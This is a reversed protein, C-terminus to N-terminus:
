LDSAQGDNLKSFSGGNEPKLKYHTRYEQVYRSVTEEDLMLAEAIRVYSWGKDTLLVAKIRDRVRGDRETRHHEKLVQRQSETLFEKM